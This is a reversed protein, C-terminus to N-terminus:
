NTQATEVEPMIETVNERVVKYATVREDHLYTVVFHVKNDHCHIAQHNKFHKKNTPTLHDLMFIFVNMKKAACIFKEVEAVKASKHLSVTLTELTYKSILRHLEADTYTRTGGGIVLTDLVNASTLSDISLDNVSPKSGDHPKYIVQIRKVKTAVIPMKHEGVDAGLNLSLEELHKFPIFPTIGDIDRNLRINTPLEIALVKASSFMLLIEYTLDIKTLSVKLLHQFLSSKPSDTKAILEFCSYPINSLKLERMTKSNKVMASRLLREIDPNCTDAPTHGVDLDLSYIGKASSLEM